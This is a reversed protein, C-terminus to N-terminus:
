SSHYIDFEWVAADSLILCAYSGIVNCHTDARPKRGFHKCCRDNRSGICRTLRGRLDVHNRGIQCAGHLLRNYRYIRSDGISICYARRDKVILASVTTGYSTNELRGLKLLDRHCSYLERLIIRLLKDSDIVSHRSIAMEFAIKLRYTIHGSAIEGSCLGGIGDAVAALLYDRGAKTAGFVTLSDENVMRGGTEWLYATTFKMLTEM